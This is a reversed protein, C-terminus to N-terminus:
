QDTPTNRIPVRHRRRLRSRTGDKLQAGMMGADVTPVTPVRQTGYPNPPLPTHDLWCALGTDVGATWAHAADTEVDAEEKWALFVLALMALCFLAGLVLVGEPVWIM